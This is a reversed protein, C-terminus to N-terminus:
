GRRRLQRCAHGAAAPGSELRGHGVRRLPELPKSFRISSSTPQGGIQPLWHAKLRRGDSHVRRWVARVPKAPTDAIATLAPVMADLLPLAVTAGVGRLFTRRPLSLKTIIM